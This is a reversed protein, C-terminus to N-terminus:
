GAVAFRDLAREAQGREHDGLGRAAARYRKMLADDDPMRSALTRLVEGTEFDSSLNAVADLVANALAADVLGANILATLAERAEFDSSLEGTRAVYAALVAPQGRTHRAARELVNRLEFDSRIGEASELVLQVTAPAVDRRGLLAELARRREFDSSVAALAARWAERPAGTAPVKAALSILLETLEFDSGIDVALGLVRAQHVPSLTQSDLAAQLTQRQEFDGEIAKVVQLSRALQADDLKANAYLVALYRAKAHDAELLAMDALLADPGGSALLRKGRAEANIASERILAPLASALWQRGEGALPQDEGDRRYRRQIVGNKGFVDWQRKVGDRVETLELSAGRGLRVVDTEGVNFIVDGALRLDVQQQENRSRYSVDQRGALDLRSMLSDAFDESAVTTIMLGPLAVIGAIALVIATRRLGPSLPSLKVPHKELLNRVRRVVAGPDGAMAVALVPQGARAGAHSLCTALCEALPRGSGLREAARADCADEALADLRRRAHRALPHFFLPLTAISQAFRWAPDRRQLHSLEHALMARQQAAPLAESWAPLLVNAGPLVMPSHAHPLLRLTPMPIRMEGALTAAVQALKSGAVTGRKNAMRALRRVAVVQAALRLAGWLVGALWLAILLRAVVDPVEGDTATPVPLSMGPPSAQAQLAPVPHGSGDPAVDASLTAPEVTQARGNTPTAREATRTEAPAPTPIAVVDQRTVTAVPSGAEPHMSAATVGPVGVFELPASLLAGFLAFRWALEAWGPHKLAGARELLWVAGLLATAHLALTLLFSFALDLASM